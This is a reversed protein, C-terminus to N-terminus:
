MWRIAARELQRGKWTAAGTLALTMSRLAIMIFIFLTVPYFFALYVPFRFRRYTLVFLLLSELAAFVALDPPFPSLPTGMWWTMLALPPELFAFTVWALAILYPLIRYDFFAFVNKSFGEVIEPFNHYMRCSVHRTGDLLCWQYGKEVIRRGLAVDDVVHQRVAEYGGVAEYAPRRFLMFQGITVTLNPWRLRRALSVPLFSLIGWGIVPLILKEAWTVVEEKPFATVLDAQEVLLASVGGRLADPQHRTDADTFLLLDGHAAQALQHCAWHKGLWGPPLPRGDLIRLRDDREALRKALARTEDTSHDDLVLVEFNLYDQNLLSLVCAEINHAENRAPVLVSLRPFEPPPAYEDFRRVALLNLIATM